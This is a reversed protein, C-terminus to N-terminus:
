NLLQFLHAALQYVKKKDNTSAQASESMKLLFERLDLIKDIAVQIHDDPIQIFGSFYCGRGFPKELFKKYVDSYNVESEYIQKKLEADQNQDLDDQNLFLNSKLVKFENKNIQKLVDRALLIQIIEDVREANIQPFLVMSNLINKKNLKGQHLMLYQHVVLVDLHLFLKQYEETSVTSKFIKKSQNLYIKDDLIHQLDPNLQDHLTLYILRESDVSNLDFVKAFELARQITLKKKKTILEPLYSLPWNLKKAIFRFSFKKDIKKNSEYFNNFYDSYNLFNKIKPLYM